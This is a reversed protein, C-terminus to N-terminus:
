AAEYPGISHKSASRAPGNDQVFGNVDLSGLSDLPQNASDGGNLLPSGGAYTWDVVDRSATYFYDIADNFVTQNELASNYVGCGGYTSQLVTSNGSPSAPQHDGGHFWSWVYNNGETVDAGTGTVQGIFINNYLSLGAIDGADGISHVTFASEYRYRGDNDTGAVPTNCGGARYRSAILNNRIVNNVGLNYIRFLSPNVAAYIANNEVTINSYNEEGGSVDPQYCMVGASSGLGHMINRRITVDSSRISIMSAHPDAPADPDTPYTTYDVGQIHNLDILFNDNGGLYQIGSGATALLYNNIISWFSSNQVSFPRFVEYIKCKRIVVNTSSVGDVGDWTYPDGPSASEKAYKLAHIECRIAEINNSNHIRLCDGGVSGPHLIDLEWLKINTGGDININNTRTLPSIGLGVLQLGGALFDKSIQTQTISYPTANHELGIVVGELQAGTKNMETDLEAQNTVTITPTPAAGASGNPFESYM